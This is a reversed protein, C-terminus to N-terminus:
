QQVPTIAMMTDKLSATPDSDIGPDTFSVLLTEDFPSKNETLMEVSLSNPIACQPQKSHFRQKVQEDAMQVGRWYPWTMNKTITFKDPAHMDTIPRVGIFYLSMGSLHLGSYPLRSRAVCVTGKRSKAQHKNGVNITGSLWHLKAFCIRYSSRGMDDAKCCMDTNYFSSYLIGLSGAQFIHRAVTWCCLWRKYM